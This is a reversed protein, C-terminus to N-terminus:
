VRFHHPLLINFHNYVQHQGSQLVTIIINKLHWLVLNTWPRDLGNQLNFSLDFQISGSVQVGTLKYFQAELLARNISVLTEEYDDNLQMKFIQEPSLIAGCFIDTKSSNQNGQSTYCQGHVPLKLIYRTTLNDINIAVPAGYKLYGLHVSDLDYDCYKVNLDSVGRSLELSHPCILRGLESRAEGPDSTNLAEYKTLANDAWM